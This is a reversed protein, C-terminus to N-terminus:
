RYIGWFKPDCLMKLILSSHFILDTSKPSNKFFSIVFARIKTSTTDSKGSAFQTLAVHLM